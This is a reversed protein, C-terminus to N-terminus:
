FTKVLESSLNELSPKLGSYSKQICFLKLNNGNILCYLHENFGTIKFYVKTLGSQDITNMVNKCGSVTLFDKFSSLEIDTLKLLRLDAVCIYKGESLYVMVQEDLFDRFESITAFNPFLYIFKKKKIEFILGADKLVDIHHSITSKALDFVEGLHKATNLSVIPEEGLFSFSALEVIKLFIKLRTEDGLTSFGVLGIRKNQM